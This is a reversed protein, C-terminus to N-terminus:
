SFRSPCLVYEFPNAIVAHSRVICINDGGEFSAGYLDGVVLAGENIDEASTPNTIGELVFVPTDYILCENTDKKALFGYCRGTTDAHDFIPAEINRATAMTETDTTDSGVEGAGSDDTSNNNGVIAITATAEVANIPSLNSCEESCEKLSMDDLVIPEGTSSSSPDFGVKCATSNYALFEKVICTSSEVYPDEPVGFDIPRRNWFKSLVITTRVNTPTSLLFSLATLFSVFRFLIFLLRGATCRTRYPGKYFCVYWRTEDITQEEQQAEDPGADGGEGGTTAAGAAPVRRLSVEFGLCSQRLETCVKRCHDATLSGAPGVESSYWYPGRGPITQLTSCSVGDIRRYLTSVEDFTTTGDGDVVDTDDLHRHRHRHQHQHDVHEELVPHHHRHGGWINRRLYILDGDGSASSEDQAAVVAVLIAAFVSTVTMTKCLSFVKM